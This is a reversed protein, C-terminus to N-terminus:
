RFFLRFCRFFLADFKAAQADTAKVARFQRWNRIRRLTRLNEEVQDVWRARHAGRRRTDTPISELFM